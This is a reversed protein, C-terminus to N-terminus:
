IFDRNGRPHVSIGTIDENGIDKPESSAVIRLGDKTELQIKGEQKAIMKGSFINSAGMFAAVFETKPSEYIENPSGMQAVKGERMVGIRDSLSLAVKQDHTVYLFTTAM